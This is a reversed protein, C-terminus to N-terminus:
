KCKTAFGPSGKDGASGTWTTTETCWNSSVNNDATLSKLAKSAGSTISWSSTYVVRDVEKGYPDVLIIADGSNTLSWSGYDYAVPVGGNTSKNDNNGVVVYKGAAVSVAGLTATTTGNDKLKYGSLNVSSSGANYIEVWEGSTDSVKAPNAMFETIVLKGTPPPPPPPTGSKPITALAFGPQKSDHFCKGRSTGNQDYAMGLCTGAPTMVGGGRYTEPNSASSGSITNAAVMYTKSYKAFMAWAVIPKWYYNPASGVAMWYSNFFTIHFSSNTAYAKLLKEPASKCSSPSTGNILKFQCQVDACILLGAKGAPTQISDCCNTGATLTKTEGSYLHFKHHKGIVKGSADLVVDTNYFKATASSGVQTAVNMILTVKLQKALTAWSAIITGSFKSNTAPYDGINPDQVYYKGQDPMGEPVIIYKAGKAAAAKVVKEIGCNVTSCGSIYQHSNPGYQVAAVKIAGPPPPPPPPGYDQPPTVGSDTPPPPPPPTGSDTPPPPPVGAEKGPPPPPPTGAEKGPPPPQYGDAPTGGTDVQGGGDYTPTPFSGEKTTCGSGLALSSAVLAVALHRTMHQM